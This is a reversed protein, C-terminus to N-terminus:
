PLLTAARALIREAVARKSAPGIEERGGDRDVLVVRNTEAGFGAGAERVDNFAVLQLGKARLKREAEEVGAGAEAAFGVLVRRGGMAGVEASIDPNRVLSLTGELAQGKKLKTASPEAPRSDAVAAAFVVLDATPAAALVADRMQLATTVSVVDVGAPPPLAVPGSVLLVRGGMDRAAEAFAYGMRGSSPNSIFRVPDIPERTPGATVVVARERLLPPCPPPLEPRPRPPGAAFVDELASVVDAADPLRGWGEGEGAALAGFGPQLVRVGDARLRAVNRQVAPHSWMHRNMAPAAVVPGPFALLWTTLLDDALGGAMRGLLDATAPAIVAAEAWAAWAVHDTPPPTADGQRVPFLATAAAEGTLAAFLAPTVFHQAAATLMTRVACGRRVLERALAASKYAAM